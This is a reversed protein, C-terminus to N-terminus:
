GVLWWILLGWLLLSLPMAIACGKYFKSNM